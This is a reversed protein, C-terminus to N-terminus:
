SRKTSPTPTQEIDPLKTNYTSAPDLARGWSGAYIKLFSFYLDRIKADM